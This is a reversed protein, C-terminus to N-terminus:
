RTVDGTPRDRGGGREERRLAQYQQKQTDDLLKNMAQDTERRQDRVARFGDPNPTGKLMAEAFVKRATEEAELRKNLEQEQASTLRATTVFDKWKAKQEVARQEQRQQRELNREQQRDAEAERIVEKLAARSADNSLVEGTMVGRVEERLQAVETLLSASFLGADTSVSTGGQRRELTVVRDWLNRSDDELLEVRKRLELEADSVRPSDVQPASPIVVPDRPILAAALALIAVCLSAIPLVRTM